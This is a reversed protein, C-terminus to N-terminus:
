WLSASNSFLLLPWLIVNNSTPQKKKQAAARSVQQPSAHVGPNCTSLLASTLHQGLLFIGQFAACDVLM